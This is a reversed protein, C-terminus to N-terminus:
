TTEDTSDTTAKGNANLRQADVRCIRKYACYKCGADQPTLQTPPFHGRKIQEALQLAQIKCSELLRLLDTQTEFLGRIEPFYRQAAYEKSGALPKKAVNNDSKLPYYGGAIVEYEAGLFEQAALASLPVHFARGAQIDKIGPAHGTKYDYLVARRPLSDSSEVDIRDINGKLFAFVRKGQETVGKLMYPSASLVCGPRETQESLEPLDPIGFGANLYRPAVRNTDRAEYEIFKSLMGQKQSSGVSASLGALLTNRLTEGFTGSLDYAAFEEAAIATMRARAEATWAALDSKNRLFDLDVNGNHGAYFRYLIRHLLASVELPSIENIEEQVPEVRLVRQFFYKLPCAAYLDFEATSYLHRRYRRILSIRAWHAALIGDFRSFDPSRRCQQADLGDLFNSVFEAGKVSRLLAAVEPIARHSADAAMLATGFWQSLESATFLDDLGREAFVNAFNEVKRSALYARVQEVYVSPLLDNEGDQMPYSLYLKKTPNLINLYFLYAAEDSQTRYTPLGLTEADQDSLFINPTPQGPFDQEVLGGFFLYEFRVQRADLRGMVFVSDHFQETAVYREGQIALTLLNFFEQFSLLQPRAANEAFTPQGRQLLDLVSFFKRLAAADTERLKRDATRFVNQPIQWRQMLRKLLAIWEPIARLDPDGFEAFDAAIREASCTVFPSAALQELSEADDDGIAARLVRLITVIVPSSALAYGQFMTLPIGFRPFIERILPAYTELASFTVGIEFLGRVQGSRVLRRIERAIETVETKRDRYASLILRNAHKESDAIIDATKERRLFLEPFPAASYERVSFGERSIYEAFQRFIRCPKPADEDSPFNYPNVPIDFTLVSQEFQECLASLIYREPQSLEYYGELVLLDPTTVVGRLDLRGAAARQAVTLFVGADDIVNATKLADEYRAFLHLLEEYVAERREAFAPLKATLDHPSAVGVRRVANLFEQIKVVIGPHERFHQFYLRGGIQQEWEALIQEILLKQELSGILTKRDPFSRYINRVVDPLTMVPFHFFGSYTRFMADKLQRVRVDSRAVYLCTQGERRRVREVLQTFAHENKGDYASGYIVTVTSM